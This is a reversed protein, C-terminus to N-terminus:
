LRYQVAGKEDFSVKGGSVMEALVSQIASDEATTGLLSKIMAQLKAQRLPKSATKKLSAVVHALGKDKKGTASTASGSAAPTKPSTNTSAGKAAAAAKKAPPKTATKGKAAGAAAASKTAPASKTVSKKTAPNAAAAPKLVAPEIPPALTFIPRGRSATRTATFGVQRASFGLEGAHELMPGYGKDNSVVVFRANPHRSAIYGMYFSLHFDLANKGSRAIKVQTARPGFSAHHADDVKQNPGHFLWVDTVDPVLIRIDGERPQVNEWDVLVHTEIAPAAAPGAPLGSRVPPHKKANKVLKRGVARKLDVRTHDAIQLLYLLVDAVEDAIQQQLVADAHAALSQEPTMWQFIEALEAAEVILATSLNKPTHFPQWDREAAFTRLTTQLAEIDM